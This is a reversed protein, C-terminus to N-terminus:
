LQSLLVPSPCQMSSMPRFIQLKSITSSISLLVELYKSTSYSMALRFLRLPPNVRGAGPQGGKGVM